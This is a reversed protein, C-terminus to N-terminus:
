DIISYKNRLSRSSLFLMSSMNGYIGATVRKDLTVAPLMTDFFANKEVFDMLNAYFGMSKEICDACFFAMEERKKIFRWTGM